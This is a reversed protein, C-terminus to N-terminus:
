NLRKLQGRIEGGANAATHVNFYWKGALLQAVDDSSLRVAGAIPSPLKMMMVVPPANAGADAPGHFHAATAPGTLGSYTVRYVLVKENTEVEATLEGKGSSTKPPVEDGPTLTAAFHVIEARAAGCTLLAASALAVASKLSM